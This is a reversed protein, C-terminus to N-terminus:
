EKIKNIFWHLGSVLLSCVVMLYLGNTGIFLGKSELYFYSLPLSVWFSQCTSCLYIPNRWYSLKEIERAVEKIPIFNEEEHFRLAELIDYQKRLPKDIGKFIPYLMGGENCMSHFLGTILFIACINILTEILINM